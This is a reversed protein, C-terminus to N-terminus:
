QLDSLILADALQSFTDSVICQEPTVANVNVVHATLAFM